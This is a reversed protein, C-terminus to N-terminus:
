LEVAPTTKKPVGRRPLPLVPSAWITDLRPGFIRSAVSHCAKVFDGRLSQHRPFGFSFNQRSIWPIGRTHKYSSFGVPMPKTLKGLRLAPIVLLCYLNNLLTKSAHIAKPYLCIANRRVVHVHALIHALFVYIILTDKPM